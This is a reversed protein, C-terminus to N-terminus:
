DAVLTMNTISQVTGLSALDPATTYTTAGGAPTPPNATCVYNLTTPTGVATPLQMQLVMAYSKFSFQDAPFAWTAVGGASVGLYGGIGFCGGEADSCDPTAAGPWASAAVSGPIGCLHPPQDTGPNQGPGDIEIPLTGAADAFFLKIESLAGMSAVFNGASSLHSDSYVNFVMAKGAGALTPHVPPSGNTQLRMFSGNSTYANLWHTPDFIISLSPSDTAEFTQASFYTVMDNTEGGGPARVTVMQAGGAPMTTSLLSSSSSDTYIGNTADSILTEYATNFNIQVGVYTGTQAPFSCAGLQAVSGKSPDFTVTCPATFPMPGCHTQGMPVFCAGNVTLTMKNPVFFWQGDAVFPAPQNVRAAVGPGIAGQYLHATASISATGQMGDDGCGFLSVALTVLGGYRAM